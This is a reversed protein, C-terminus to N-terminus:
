LKAKPKSNLNVLYVVAATVVVAGGGLMLTEQPGIVDALIGVAPGGLAMSGSFIVTYIGLIKGRIEYPTNHQIITNAAITTLLAFLGSLGLMLAYSILNPSWGAAIQWVGFFLATFALRTIPVSANRHASILGGFLAGIATTSSLLGYGAAGLGFINVAILATTIQFNLGFFALTAVLILANVIAKNAWIFKLTAFFNINPEDGNKTSQKEGNRTSLILVAFALYAVGSAILSAPVGLLSVTVGAVAPGIIRALNFNVSNLSVANSVNSEGVLDAMLSHRIPMDIASFIGVVLAFAYVMSVTHNGTFVITALTFGSLAIVASCIAMIKKKNYRDGLSGGYFSFFIAPAFQLGTIIGLAVGSGTLEIILWDQAIRHMWTGLNMVFTGVAFLRYQRFDWSAFTRKSTARFSVREVKRYTVRKLYM